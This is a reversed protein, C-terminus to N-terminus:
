KMTKPHIGLLPIALDHLLEINLKQFIEMNKGSHNYQNANGDITHQPEGKKGIDESANM